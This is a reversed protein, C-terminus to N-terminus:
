NLIVCFDIICHVGTKKGPLVPRTTGTNLAASLIGSPPGKVPPGERGNLEGKLKVALKRIEPTQRFKSLAAFQRCTYSVSAHM